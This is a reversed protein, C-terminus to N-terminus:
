TKGYLKENFQKIDFNKMDDNSEFLKIKKYQFQEKSYYNVCRYNEPDYNKILEDFQIKGKYLEDNGMRIFREYYYKDPNNYLDEILENAELVHQIADEEKEYICIPDEVSNCEYDAEYYNYVLFLEKM